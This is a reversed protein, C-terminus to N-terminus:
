IFSLQRLDHIENQPLRRGMPQNYKCASCHKHKKTCTYRVKHKIYLVKDFLTKYEIEIIEPDTTSVPTINVKVTFQTPNIGNIELQKTIDFQL